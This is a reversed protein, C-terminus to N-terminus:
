HEGSLEEETVPPYDARRYQTGRKVTMRISRINEIDALPDRSLIVM